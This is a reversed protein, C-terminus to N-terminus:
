ITLGGTVLQTGVARNDDTQLEVSLLMDAFGIAGATALDLRIGAYAGIAEFIDGPSPIVIGNIEEDENTVLLLIKREIDSEIAPEAPSDVTYRWTLQIKFLIANSLAQMRDGIAIALMWADATSTAVACYCTAKARNGDRDRFSLDIAITALRAV